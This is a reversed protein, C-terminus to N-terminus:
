SCRGLRRACSSSTARGITKRTRAHASTSRSSTPSRVRRCLLLRRDGTQVHEDRQLRYVYLTPSAELVLPAQAKLVGFNEVAKAYVADGYPNTGGPLDIEARSVHLFSLPNGAALARAEDTNVVDYPVEAVARASSPTPRLARFPSITAM